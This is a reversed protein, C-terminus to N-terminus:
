TLAVPFKTNSGYMLSDRCATEDHKLSPFELTSDRLRM